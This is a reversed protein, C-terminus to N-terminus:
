RLSVRTGNRGRRTTPNSNCSQISIPPKPQWRPCQTEKRKERARNKKKKLNKNSSCCCCVVFSQCVHSPYQDRPLCQCVFRVVWTPSLDINICYLGTELKPFVLVAVFLLTILEIKFLIYQFTNVFLSCLRSISHHSFYQM